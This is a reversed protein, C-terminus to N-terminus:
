DEDIPQRPYYKERYVLYMEALAQDMLKSHSLHDGLIRDTNDQRLILSELMETQYMVHDNLNPKPDTMGGNKEVEARAIQSNNKSQRSWHATLVIPVAAVVAIGLKILDSFQADSLLPHM